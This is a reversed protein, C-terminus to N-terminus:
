IVKEELFLEQNKWKNYGYSPVIEAITKYLSDRDHM